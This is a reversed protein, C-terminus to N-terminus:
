ANSITCLLFSTPGTFFPFAGALFGGASLAFATVTFAVFGALSDWRGFGYSCDTYAPPPTM